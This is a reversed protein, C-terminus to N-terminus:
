VNGNLKEGLVKVEFKEVRLDRLLSFVADLTRFIRQKGRQSILTRKGVPSLVLLAYGDNKAEVIYSLLVNESALLKLDKANIVDCAM